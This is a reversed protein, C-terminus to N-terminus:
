LDQGIVSLLPSPVSSPIASATSAQSQQKKLKRQATKSLGAAGNASTSEVQLAGDPCDSHTDGAPTRYSLMLGLRRVPVNIGLEAFVADLDELEKKKLEKKSLQREQEVVQKVGAGSDAPPEPERSREAEGDDEEEQACGGM